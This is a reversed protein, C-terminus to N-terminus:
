DNEPYIAEMKAGDWDAYWRVTRGKHDVGFLSICQVKKRRAYSYEGRILDERSVPQREEVDWEAVMYGVYPEEEGVLVVSDITVDFVQPWGPVKHPIESRESELIFRAIEERTTHRTCGFIVGAVCLLIVIFFRGRM